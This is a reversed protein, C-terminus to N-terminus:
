SVRVRRGVRLAWGDSWGVVIIINHLIATTTNYVRIRKDHTGTYFIINGAISEQMQLAFAIFFGAAAATPSNVFHIKYIYLILIVYYYHIKALQSIINQMTEAAYKKIVTPHTYM